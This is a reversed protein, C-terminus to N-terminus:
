RLEELEERTKEANSEWGKEEYFELKSELAEVEENTPTEGALEENSIDGARPAPDTDTVSSTNEENYIDWLEDFDFKGVMTQADMPVESELEEALVDKAQDIKHRNRALQELEEDVASEKLDEYEKEEIIIANDFDPLHEQVSEPFADNPILISKSM